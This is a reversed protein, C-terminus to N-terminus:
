DYKEEMMKYEKYVEEFAEEPTAAWGTKIIEWEQGTYCVRLFWRYQKELGYRKNADLDIEINYSLKMPEGWIIM